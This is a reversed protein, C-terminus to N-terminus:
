REFDSWDLNARGDEQGAGFGDAFGIDYCVSMIHHINKTKLWRVDTVEEIRQINKVMKKEIAEDMATAM